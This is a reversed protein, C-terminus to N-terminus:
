PTAAPLLRELGALPLAGSQRQREAGREFVMITPISRIQFAAATQRAVETNVKAVIAQGQRRAALQDVAPAMAKCPGCWDAYFDVLVPVESERVTREFTEDTLLLPRDLLM